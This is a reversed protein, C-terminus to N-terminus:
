GRRRRRSARADPGRRQVVNMEMSAAVPVSAGRAADSGSEIDIGQAAQWQVRMLPEQLREVLCVVHRTVGSQLASHNEAIAALAKVTYMAKFKQVRHWRSACNRDQHKQRPSSAVPSWQMACAELLRCCRVALDTTVPAHESMLALVVDIQEPFMVCPSMVDVIDLPLGHPLM